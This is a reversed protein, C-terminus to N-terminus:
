CTRVTAERQEVSSPKWDAEELADQTAALAYQTYRAMRHEDQPLLPDNWIERRRKMPTRCVDKSLWDLANWGGSQREGSPVVAAIQCPLEAFRPDRHRVNVIGCQGDLLRNWTRRIGEWRVIRKVNM